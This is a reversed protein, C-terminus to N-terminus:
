IINQITQRQYIVYRGYPISTMTHNQKAYTSKDVRSLRRIHSAYKHNVTISRPKHATPHEGPRAKM